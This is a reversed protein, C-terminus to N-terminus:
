VKAGSWIVWVVGRRLSTSLGSPPPPAAHVPVYATREVSLGVAILGGVELGNQRWSGASTSDATSFTVQPRILLRVCLRSSQANSCTAKCPGPRVSRGRKQKLPPPHDRGNSATTVGCFCKSLRSLRRTCCPKEEAFYISFTKLREDGRRGCEVAPVPLPRLLDTIRTSKHALTLLFKRWRYNAFYASGDRPKKREPPSVTRRYVDVTTGDALLGPMVFWGNSQSPQPAFM